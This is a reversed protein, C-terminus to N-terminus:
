PAAPGGGQLCLTGNLLLLVPTGDLVYQTSGLSTQSTRVELTDSQTASILSYNRYVQDDGLYFVPDDAPRNFSLRYTTNPQLNPISFSGDELIDVKNVPGGNADRVTVSGLSAQGQSGTAPSYSSGSLRFMQDASPVQPQLSTPECDGYIIDSGIKDLLGKLANGSNATDFFPPSKSSAMYDLGAQSFQSGMALVYIKANKPNNQDKILDAQAGAQNIPLNTKWTPDYNADITEKSSAVGNLDVNLLGDTLFIVVRERGASSGSDLLQKARQLGLAGPSNGITTYLDSPNTSGPSKSAAQNILLDVVSGSGTGGLINTSLGTTPWTKVQTGAGSGNYTVVAARDQGINWQFGEIFGKVAQKAQYLRRQSYDSYADASQCGKALGLLAVCDIPKGVGAGPPLANANQLDAILTSSATGIGSWDWNMSGSADLVVIVDVPQRSNPTTSLQPKIKISGALTVPTDNLFVESQNRPCRIAPGIKVLDLFWGSGRTLDQGGNPDKLWPDNKDIYGYGVIMYGGFSRIRYRAGQRIGNSTLDYEPLNLYTRNQIHWQLQAIVKEEDKSPKKNTTFAKGTGYGDGLTMSQTGFMIDWASPIGPKDPYTAPEAPFPNNRPAEEYKDATGPPTLAAAMADAYNLGGNNDLWRLWTFQGPVHTLNNANDNATPDDRLFMRRMPKKKYIDDTYVNDGKATGLQPTYFADKEVGIPYPPCVDASAYANANVPLTGRGVVGAFNTAQIGDLIVEVYNVDSPIQDPSGELVPEARGDGKIFVAKLKRQGAQVQIGPDDAVWQINHGELSRKIASDVEGRTGGALVVRMGEVAAADSARQAARQEAYANGVDVSLAALGILIAIVLAILVLSQGPSRRQLAQARKKLGPKM